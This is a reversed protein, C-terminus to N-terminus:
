KNTIFEKYTHNMVYLLIPVNIFSKIDYGIDDTDILKIEDDFLGVDKNNFFKVIMKYIPNVQITETNHPVETDINGDSSVVTMYSDNVVDVINELINYKIYRLLDRDIYEESNTSDNTHEKCFSISMVNRVRLITFVSEGYSIPERTFGIIDPINNKNKKELARYISKDYEIELNRTKDENTLMVTTYDKENQLIKNKTIFHTMYKDYINCKGDDFILSNTKKDYYLLFYKKIIDDYTKEFFEIKKFDDSRILCKDETGINRYVCEFNDITQMDINQIDSYEIKDLSFGIKYFNNSKITDYGVETVMFLIPANLHNIIFFDNPSPVITNPLIVLDGDYSTTLGEEDESLNLVVQDLGYVPFSEIKNFRIPSNPGLLREINMFGDDTTSEVSNISYYTVFVPPRDLFRTYQSNLRDEYVFANSNIMMEEKIFTAM